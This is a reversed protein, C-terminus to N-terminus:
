RLSSPVDRRPRCCTRLSAGIRYLFDMGLSPLRVYTLSSSLSMALTPRTPNELAPFDLRSDAILQTCGFIAEYGNVVSSGGQYPVLVPVADHSILSVASPRLRPM